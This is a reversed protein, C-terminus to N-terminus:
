QYGRGRHVPFGSIVDLPIPVACRSSGCFDFCCLLNGPCDDDIKCGPAQTLGCAKSDDMRLVALPCQGSDKTRLDCTKKFCKANRNPRPCVCMRCDQYVMLMDSTCGVPAVPPRRQNQQFMRNMPQRATQVVGYEGVVILLITVIIGNPVLRLKNM